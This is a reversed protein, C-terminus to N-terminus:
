VGHVTNTRSKQKDRRLIRCGLSAGWHSTWVRVTIEREQLVKHQWELATHQEIADISTQDVLHM